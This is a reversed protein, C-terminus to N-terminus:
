FKDWVHIDTCLDGDEVNFTAGAYYEKYKGIGEISVYVLYICGADWYYKNGYTIKVTAKAPVKLAERVRKETVLSNYDNKGIVTIKCKYKKKGVKATIVTTGKQKAKVIGKSSVTAVNEKSSTWKIRSKCNEVKLQYEKGVKLTKKKTNLHQTAAKVEMNSLPLISSMTGFLIIAVIICVRLKKSIKKMKKM